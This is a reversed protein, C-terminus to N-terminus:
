SINLVGCTKRKTLQLEPVSLRSEYVDGSSICGPLLMCMVLHFVDQCYCPQIQIQINLGLVGLFVSNFVVSSSLVQPTYFM